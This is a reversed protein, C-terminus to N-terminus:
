GELRGYRPQGAFGQRPFARSCHGQQAVIGLLRHLLAVRACNSAGVPGERWTKILARQNGFGLRFSGAGGERLAPPFIKLPVAGPRGPRGPKPGRWGKLCAVKSGLLAVGYM